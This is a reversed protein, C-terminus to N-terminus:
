TNGGISISLKLGCGFLLWAFLPSDHLFGTFDRRHAPNRRFTRELVVVLYCGFLLRVPLVRKSADAFLMM